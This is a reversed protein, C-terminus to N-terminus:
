RDEEVHRKLQRLNGAWFMAYDGLWEDVWRLPEANLECVRATGEARTIVLDASQLIRLHRSIAPRSTRFHGAIEGVTLQRARLLHLIQRRTPDALARFVSERLRLRSTAMRIITVSHNRNLL